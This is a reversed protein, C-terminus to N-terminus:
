KQTGSTTGSWHEAIASFVPRPRGLPVGHICVLNRPPNKTGDRRQFRIPSPLICTPRRRARDGAETRSIAVSAPKEQSRDCTHCPRQQHSKGDVSVICCWTMGPHPVIPRNTRRNCIYTAGSNKSKMTTLWARAPSRIIAIEPMMMVGKSKEKRDGPRHNLPSVRTWLPVPPVRPRRRAPPFTLTFTSECTPPAPFPVPREPRGM